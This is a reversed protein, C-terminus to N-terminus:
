HINLGELRAILQFTQTDYLKIFNNSASAALVTSNSNVCTRYVYCDAENSVVVDPTGESEEQPPSSSSSTDMTLQNVLVTQCKYRSGLLDFSKNSLVVPPAQESIIEM